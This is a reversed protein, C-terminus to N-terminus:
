AAFKGFALGLRPRWQPVVAPPAQSLAARLSAKMEMLYCGDREMFVPDGCCSLAKAVPMGVLGRGAESTADM